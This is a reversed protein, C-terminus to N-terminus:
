YDRGREGPHTLVKHRPMSALVERAREAAASRRYMARVLAHAARVRRLCVTLLLMEKVHSIKYEGKAWRIVGRVSMNLDGALPAQWSKGYAIRALRVFHEPTIGEYSAARKLKERYSGKAARKAALTANTPRGRPNGCAGPMWQGKSNRSVPPRQWPLVPMLPLRSLDTPM